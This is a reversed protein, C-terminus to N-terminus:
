NQRNIRGEITSTFPQDLNQIYEILASLDIPGFQRNVGDKLVTFRDGGEALFDNVTVTYIANRDIPQGDKLIEVIRDDDANPGANWTYTLGSIQLMQDENQYPTFQQNLLDYIQQGSLEMKVLYNNFPEIAYLEGWTVDGSDMDGRIGGPNMFAFDTQMAARQSDAVLNGLASEGADNLTNLIAAGADAIFKSILPKVAAEAEEVLASVEPDPHLGPGEDAWTTVIRASKAIVDKSSRDIELDIDVYAKGKSMAQVVLIGAGDSNTNSIQSKAILANTFGHTHASVVVDVEEDLAKVIPVIEGTVDNKSPDTPGSYAEQDGGQHLLVIITQVGFRKLLKVQFNIAFVEDIFTLGAVGSSTVINSTDKLVAGIIAVPVGKIWKIVFPPLLPLFTEKNLVNACVEPFAAGKWPTQLFPGDM